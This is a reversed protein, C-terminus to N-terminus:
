LLPIYADVCSEKRLNGKVPSRHTPNGDLFKVFSKFGYVTETDRNWQYEQYYVM